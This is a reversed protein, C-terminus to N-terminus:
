EAVADVVSAEAKPALAKKRLADNINYLSRSINVFVKLFAWEIFFIIFGGVGIGLAALGTTTEDDALQSIGVAIGGIGVIIGLVLFIVAITNVVGEATPSVSYPQKESM